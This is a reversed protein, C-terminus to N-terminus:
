PSPVAWHRCHVLEEWQVNSDGELCGCLGGWHQSSWLLPCHPSDKNLLAGAHGFSKLWSTTGGAEGQGGGGANLVPLVPEQLAVPM